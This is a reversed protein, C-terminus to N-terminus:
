SYKKGPGTYSYTQGQEGRSRREAQYLIMANRPVNLDAGSGMMRATVTATATRQAGGPDVQLDPPPATALPAKHRIM